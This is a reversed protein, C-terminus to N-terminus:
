KWGAPPTKGGKGGAPAPAPAPAPAAPLNPRISNYIGYATSINEQKDKTLNKIGMNMSAQINKNMSVFSVESGYMNQGLADQVGPKVQYGYIETKGNPMTRVGAVQFPVMKNQGPVPVTIEFKAGFDVSKAGYYKSKPDTDVNIGYQSPDFRGGGSNLAEIKAKSEKINWNAASIAAQKAQKELAWKEDLHTYEWEDTKARFEESQAQYASKTEIDSKPQKQLQAYEDFFGKVIEKEPLLSAAPGLRKKILEFVRPNETKFQETKIDYYDKTVVKGDPLTMQVPAPPVYTKTLPDYNWDSIVQGEVVRKSKDPMEYEKKFTTYPAVKAFYKNTVTHLDIGNEYASDMQTIIDQASKNRTDLIPKEIDALTVPLSTLDDKTAIAVQLKQKYAEEVNEFVNKRAKIQSIEDVIENRADYDLRGNKQIRERAKTLLNKTSGIIEEQGVRNMKETLENINQLTKEAIEYDEQKKKVIITFANALGASTQAFKESISEAPKYIYPEAM